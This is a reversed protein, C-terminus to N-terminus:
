TTTPGGAGPNRFPNTFTALWDVVWRHSQGCEGAMQSQHERARKLPVVLDRPLKAREFYGIQEDLASVVVFGAKRQADLFAPLEEFWNEPDIQPHTLEAKAVQGWRAPDAAM